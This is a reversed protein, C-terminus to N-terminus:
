LSDSIQAKETGLQIAYANVKNTENLIPQGDIAKFYLKLFQNNLWLHEQIPYTYEFDNFPKEM